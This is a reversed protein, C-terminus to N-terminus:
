IYQRILICLGDLMFIAVSSIMDYKYESNDTYHLIDGLIYNVIILHLKYKM